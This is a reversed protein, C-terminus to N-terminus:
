YGLALGEMEIVRFIVKNLSAILISKARKWMQKAGFKKTGQILEDKTKPKVNRRIFDKLEHMGCTRLDPSENWWNIEEQRM